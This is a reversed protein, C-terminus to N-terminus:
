GSSASAGCAPTASKVMLEDLVRHAFKNAEGLRPPSMAETLRLVLQAPSGGLADRPLRLLSHLAHSGFTHQALAVLQELSLGLFADVLAQKDEADCYAFADEIVYCGNRSKAFSPLDSCLVAVIAHHQRPLGHELISQVVYHGFAHRCLLGAQLLAEDLLAVPGDQNGAHELLRCFIRCGYKHCAVEVAVGRLEQAIFASHAVPMVEIIRQLVYNAHPSRVADRVSGHLEALLPAVDRCDADVILDQV